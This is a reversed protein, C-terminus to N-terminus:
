EGAVQRVAVPLKCWQDGSDAVIDFIGMVSQRGRVSLLQQLLHERPTTPKWIEALLRHLEYHVAAGGISTDANFRAKYRSEFDPSVGVSAYWAGVLAGQSLQVESSSNLTECGLVPITMQLQRLQKAFKAGQGVSLCVVVADVRRNKAQLAFASFDWETPAVEGLSVTESTYGESFGQVVAQAYQDTYALTAVKRVGLANAKHALAMGEEKASAWSRVVWRRGRAVHDASAWAVLPVQAREALPAVASAPTSGLVVILDVVDHKVLKNFAGVTKKPDFQDDEYVVTIAQDGLEGRALEFGNRAADGFAKGPGSFGGIFGIRREAHGLCPVAIICLALLIRHKM